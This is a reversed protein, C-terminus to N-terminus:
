LIAAVEFGAETIAACVRTGDLAEGTVTVSGTSVDIGVRDVGLVGGVKTELTGACRDCTMGIVHYRQETM